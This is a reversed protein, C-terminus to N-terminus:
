CVVRYRRGSLREVTEACLVTDSGETEGCFLIAM